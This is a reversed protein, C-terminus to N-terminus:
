VRVHTCVRAGEVLGLDAANGPLVLGFQLLLARSPLAGYSLFVQQGRRIPERAMIAFHEGDETLGKVTHGPHAHNPMDGMPVLM